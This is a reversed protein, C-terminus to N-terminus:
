RAGATADPRVTDRVTRLATAFADLQEATLLGTFWREIANVIDPVGAALREVGTDTLV